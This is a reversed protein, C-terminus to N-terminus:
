PHPAPIRAADQAGRIVTFRHGPKKIFPGKPALNDQLIRLLVSPPALIRKHELGAALVLVNVAHGTKQLMGVIRAVTPAQYHRKRGVVVKEVIEQLEAEVDLWDYYACEDLREWAKGMRDALANWGKEKRSELRQYDIRGPM